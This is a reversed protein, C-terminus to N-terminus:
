ALLRAGYGNFYKPMGLTVRAFAPRMFPQAAMKYTGYEVYRSYGARSVVASATKEIHDRMFGTDVAAGAKAFLVIDDLVESLRQDTVPKLNRQVRPLDNRTIFVTVSM